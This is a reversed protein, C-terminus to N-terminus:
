VGSVVDKLMNYNFMYESHLKSCGPVAGQIRARPLAAAFARVPLRASAELALRAVTSTTTDSAMQRVRTRSADANAFSVLIVDGFPRLRLHKRLSTAPRSMTM